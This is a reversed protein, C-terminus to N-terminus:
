RQSACIVHNQTSWSQFRMTCGTLVSRLAGKQHLGQAVRSADSEVCRSAGGGPISLMIGVPPNHAHKRGHLEVPGHLCCNSTRFNHHFLDCLALCCSLVVLQFAFHFFHSNLSSSSLNGPCMTPLQPSLISGSLPSFLQGLGSCM